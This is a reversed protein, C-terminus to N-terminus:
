PRSGAANAAVELDHLTPGEDKDCRGTSRDCDAARGSRVGRRDAVYRLPPERRDHGRLALEERDRERVTSGAEDPPEGRADVRMDQALPGLGVDAWM